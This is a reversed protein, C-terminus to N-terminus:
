RFPTFLSANLPIAPTFQAFLEEKYWNEQQVRKIVEQHKGAYAFQQMARLNEWVSFTAQEILPWEGIGKKFLLGKMGNVQESTHPVQRWFRRLRNTHIRARTLVCLPAEKIETAACDSFPNEQQWEGHSKVYLLPLSQQHTSKQLYEQWLPNSKQFRKEDQQDRWKTFLAYVSFDPWISFGNGSGTGLLKYFQLGEVKQLNAHAQRMQKFAWFKHTDFKFFHISLHPANM